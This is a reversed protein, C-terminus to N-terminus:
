NLISKIEKIGAVPQTFRITKFGLKKATNINNVSDDIFLCEEPQLNLKQCTLLYIEANPKRMKVVSSDIILDFYKKYKVVTEWRDMIGPPNNTIIALKYKGKLEELLVFTEKIQPFNFPINKDMIEWLNEIKMKQAITKFFSTLSLEGVEAQPALNLVVQMLEDYTFGLKKAVKGWGTKWDYLVGGMDFIVAKIETM